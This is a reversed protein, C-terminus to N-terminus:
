TPVPKPNKSGEDPLSTVRGWSTRRSIKSVM